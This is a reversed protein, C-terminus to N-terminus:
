LIRGVPYRNVGVEVSERVKKMFFNLIAVPDDAFVPDTKKKEEFEKQLQPDKAMMERGKIEMYKLSIWFENPAKIYSNFFGWYVLSTSSKPELLHAIIKVKPQSTPIFVDGKHYQIDERIPIYETSLTIRGEYPSKSWESQTFHYTEVNIVTDRELPSYKQWGTCYYDYMAKKDEEIFFLYTKKDKIM